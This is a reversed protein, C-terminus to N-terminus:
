DDESDEVKVVPEDCIADDPVMYLRFGWGAFTLLAAGFDRWNMERGDVWVTPERPTDASESIVGRVVDGRPSWEGSREHFSLQPRGVPIERCVHEYSRRSAEMAEVTDNWRDLIQQDTMGPTEDGLRFSVSGVAPDAYEILAGGSERTIRVQDPSAVFPRKGPRSM